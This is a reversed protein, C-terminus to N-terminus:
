MLPSFMKFFAWLARRYLPQTNFWELDAQHSQAMDKQFIAKCQRAMDQDYFIANVEFHLDFSRTDINTSGITSIKDDCVMTKSHIFGNYHYFQVGFGLMERIFQYAAIKVYFKDWRDPVMVRVDVGSQAAIKLANYFQQSPTFYPTQIYVYDKASLLMRILAAEIETSRLDDPGATIIQTPIGETLFLTDVAVKRHPAPSHQSADLREKLLQVTAAPFHRTIDETRKLRSHWAPTTFWDILFISHLNIVCSGTLRIHTDRWLPKKKNTSRNAYEDGINIGGMYGIKGDIITIKRHNRFNISLPLRWKVPFFAQAQGGAETLRHFFSNPTLISGVDDYLLKVEIGSQAKRCLLEMLLTGTADDHIIFSELCISETAAEMDTLMDKFLDQGWCYIKTSSATSLPSKNGELNMRILPLYERIIPNDLHVALRDLLRAQSLNTKLSDFFRAVQTLQKTKTFFHGSLLIYLVMGVMPLFHLVMVWAWRRSDEKREFFLVFIIFLINLIAAINLFLEM